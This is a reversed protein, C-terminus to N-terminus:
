PMPIFIDLKIQQLLLGLGGSFKNVKGYRLHNFRDLYWNDFFIDANPFIFVKETYQNYQEIHHIIKALVVATIFVKQELDRLISLDMIITKENQVFDKPVTELEMREEDVDPIYIADETFEKLMSLISDAYPSKQWEKSTEIELAIDSLSTRGTKRMKKIYRKFTQTARENEKFSMAWSDILLDDYKDDYRDNRIDTAIPDIQFTRGLKYHRLHSEYITGEFYTLLKSFNGSFDFIVSPQGAKVLEKTLALLINERDNATGNTILLNKVQDITFGAPIEEELFETNITNGIVIDNQIDLPSNFEAAIRTEVGKKFENAIENLNVLTKGQIISYDMHTGALRYFKSKLMTAILASLSRKSSLVELHYNPFNAKYINLFEKERKLLTESIQEFHNQSLIKTYKVEQLSIIQSMRWIGGRMHFWEEREHESERQLLRDRTFATLYKLSVKEFNSYDLPSNILTYTYPIQRNVVSRFFKDPNALFYGDASYQPPTMYNLNLMSFGILYRNHLYLFIFDQFEPLRYFALNHFYPIEEREERLVILESLHYIVERWYFAFILCIVVANIILVVGFEFYSMFIFDLYFVIGLIMLAKILYLFSNNPISPTNQPGKLSSIPIGFVLTQIAQFLDNGKLLNIKFHALNAICISKFTYCFEELADQIQILKTKTLISSVYYSLAFYLDIRTTQSQDRYLPNQVIQYTFPIQANHLSKILHNLNPRVNEPIVAIKFIRIGTNLLDRKNSLYLTFEDESM